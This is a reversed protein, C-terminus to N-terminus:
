TEIALEIQVGALPPAPKAGQFLSRGPFSWRGRPFRQPSPAPPEPRGVAPETMSKNMTDANNVAGADVRVAVSALPAADLGAGPKDGAAFRPLLGPRAMRYRNPEDRVRGLTRGVALLRILNM